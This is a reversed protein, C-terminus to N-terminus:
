DVRNIPSKGVGKLPVKEVSKRYPRELIPEIEKLEVTQLNKLHRIITESILPRASLHDKLRCLFAEHPRSQRYKPARPPHKLYHMNEADFDWLLSSHHLWRNKSMYQANGGFKQEGLVYDNERIQFEVGPFLPRYISETWTLVKQPCPSVSLEESNGIFTVFHTNEDVFVTGGGSFRRILPVPHKELLHTNVWQEPQGSIGMVIAKPTGENIICWNGTDARLLAEELQLQKFIPYHNLFLIHWLPMQNNMM